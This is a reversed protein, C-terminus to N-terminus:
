KLVHQVLKGARCILHPTQGLSLSVFNGVGDRVRPDVASLGVEWDIPLLPLLEYQNLWVQSCRIWTINMHLCWEHSVMSLCMRNSLGTAVHFSVLSLFLIGM